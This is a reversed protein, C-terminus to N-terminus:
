TLGAGTIVFTNTGVCVITALGRQALTRNGTSATGAFYVTLSTTTITISSASNNFITIIDGNSHVSVGITVNGTVVVTRGNDTAATTYGTTQSNLIASRVNGLNDSITSLTTLAGASSITLETTSSNYADNVTQFVYNGSNDGGHRWTKLDTGANSNYTQFYGLTAGDNVVTEGARTYVNSNGLSGPISTLATSSGSVLLQGSTLFRARNSGNVFITLPVATGSLNTGTALTAVTSSISLGVVANDTVNTTNYCYIASSTSTGNPIIRLTTDANTSSTQFMVGTDGGFNGTIRNNTGTFTLNGSTTISTLTGVSTLSSGTVGSGLTTSNLVSTGNIYYAKGTLLNLHESSTWADTADVWNFTKDTAGKLTIGGGDATTDTPSTISGLEINKDDVSLTTSNITTTTGNVTLDGAVVLNSSFYGSGTVELKYTGSPTNGIGVNGSTDIRVCESGGTSFTLPLYTGTGRIGSIINAASSTASFQLYGSNTYTSNNELLVSSASGSGNPIVSVITFGNTTSTQFAVRNALTANSFDGLIRNGTGTFTLNGSDTLSTFSGAAATSGGIATGDITGGNIDASTITLSAATDGSQLKDTNLNTLNNDMETNTLPSGKGARTTITSM